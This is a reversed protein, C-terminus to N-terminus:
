KALTQEMDNANNRSLQKLVDETGVFGPKIYNQKRRKFNKKIITKLDDERSRIFRDYKYIQEHAYENEHDMMDSSKKEDPFIPTIGFINSTPRRM